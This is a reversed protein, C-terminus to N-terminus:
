RPSRAPRRSTAGAPLARDQKARATDPIYPHLFGCMGLTTNPGGDLAGVSGDALHAVSGGSLAEVHAASLAAEAAPGAALLDRWAPLRPAVLAGAAEHFQRLPEVDGAQAAERLRLYGRVALDRRARALEESPEGAADRVSAARAYADADGVVDAPFTMVADGAEPLGSNSMVVVVRLDGSDNIARHITGPAFWVIKGPRLEHTELADLTLTELRGEGGVVLYCETSVLHLHPSGGALGDETPWPYVRLDTLGVAGPLNQKM